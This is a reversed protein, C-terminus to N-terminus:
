DREITLTYTGSGSFRTADIIYDGNVPLRFPDIRADLGLSIDFGDDNEALIEGNSRRLRLFPDLNGSTNRMTVTFNQGANGRVIWYQVPLVTDITGEVSITDTGEAFTLVQAINLALDYRGAGLTAEVIVVYDGDRRLEYRDIQPDLPNILTFDEDMEAVVVEDGNPDLLRLTLDVPTTVDSIATLTIVDGTQGSFTWFQEPTDRTLEGAVPVNAQLNTTGVRGTEIGLSFATINGYVGNSDATYIVGTPSIAVDALNLLEGAQPFDPNAPSEGLNGIPNGDLGFTVVQNEDTAVVLQNTLSLTVAQPFVNSRLRTREVLTEEATLEYLITTDFAFLTGFQDTFLLPQATLQVNEPAIVRSGGDRAFVRIVTQGEAIDIAYVSTDNVALSLPNGAFFGELADQEDGNAVVRVCRCALDAIYLTGDSAVVVDQVNLTGQLPVIDTVLGTNADLTIVGLLNDVAYLTSGDVSIALGALTVFANTADQLTRSEHWLIGYEPQETTQTLSLSTTLTSFLLTFNDQQVAPARGYIVLVANETQLEIAQGLGILEGDSSAGRTAVSQRGFLTAPLEGVATIGASDLDNELIDYPVLPEIVGNEDPESPRVISLTIFPIAPPRTDPQDVLTQALFLNTRNVEPVEAELPEDWSAPYQFAIGGAQWAYETFTNQAVASVTMLLLLCVWLFHGKRKIM